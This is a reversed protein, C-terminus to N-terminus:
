DEKTDEETEMLAYLNRLAAVVAESDGSRVGDILRQAAMNIGDKVYDAMNFDPPGPEKMTQVYGPKGVASGPKPKWPLIM